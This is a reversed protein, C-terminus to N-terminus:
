ESYYFTPLKAFFLLLLFLPFNFLVLGTPGPNFFVKHTFIGMYGCCVMYFRTLHSEYDEVDDICLLSCICSMVTLM